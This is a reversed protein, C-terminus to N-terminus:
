FHYILSHFIYFIKKQFLVSNVILNVGEGEVVLYGKNDLYMREENGMVLARGNKMWILKGSMGDDGDDEGDFGTPRRSAVSCSFVGTAGAPLTQNQPLFGLM